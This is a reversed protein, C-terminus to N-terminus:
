KFYYKKLYKDEDLYNNNVYILHTKNKHMKKYNTIIKLKPYNFNYLVRELLFKNYLFKIQKLYKYNYTLLVSIVM